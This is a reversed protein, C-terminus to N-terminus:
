GFHETGIVRVVEIAEHILVQRLFVHSLLHLHRFEDRLFPLYFLRFWIYYEFWM